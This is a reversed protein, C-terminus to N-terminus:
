ATKSQAAAAPADAGSLKVFAIVLAALLAASGIMTSVLQLGIGAKFLFGAIIPALLAGARGAGIVFGTGAARVQTPFAEAFIAYLGVIGAQIAFGALAAILTLSALDAQGRGFVVLMATTALFATVTMPKLGFIQALFGFVVGGIIGGASMWVLVGAASSPHYGMGTVITPTWKLVYYFVTIHAFYGITVLITTMALGPTFLSAIPVRAAPEAPPLETIPAHGMRKLIRNIKDLADPPRRSALHAPSEPTLFIGLPIFLTTLVAGFIFVLRWDGSQSLALAIPNDDKLLWAAISGGAVVGIPYGIVM